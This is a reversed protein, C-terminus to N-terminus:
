PKLVRLGHTGILFALSVFSNYSVHFLYSAWVTKKVARAYTFVIGVIVLLGIQLWGGWLQAAHLLGFLTGTVLIGAGVGFSRAIVPYIYGRFITEEIVPAVLVAMLLLLAAARRDEFLTEMPLKAHTPFRESIAQVVLSLSFGGAIFGLYTLGRSGWGSELRRWGVTRWFPLSFRLRVQIILYGLLVAFLVAQVLIAWLSKYAPVNQLQAPSVGLAAFVIALLISIVLTGAIPVIALLLLDLWGWPVRLDEPVFRGASPPTPESPAPALPASEPVTQAPELPRSPLASQEEFFM